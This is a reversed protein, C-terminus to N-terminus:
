SVKLEAIGSLQSEAKARFDQEYNRSYIYDATIIGASMLIFILILIFTHGAGRRTLRRLYIFTDVQRKLKRDYSTTGNAMFGIANWM